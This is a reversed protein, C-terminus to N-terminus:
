TCPRESGSSTWGGDWFNVRDSLGLSASLARVEDTLLGQGILDLEWPLTAPPLRRQLGV